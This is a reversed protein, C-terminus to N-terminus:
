EDVMREGGGDRLESPEVEQQFPAAGEPVSGSSAVSKELAIWMAEEEADIQHPMAIPAPNHPPLLTVSKAGGGRSDSANFSQIMSPSLLVKITFCGLLTGWPMQFCNIASMVMVFTRHKRLQLCRGAYLTLGGYVWGGLLLATGLGAFLYGMFQAGIEASSGKLEPTMAMAIGMLIHFLFICSGLLTFGGLVYHFIALLRVHEEEIARRVLANTPVDPAPIFDVRDDPSPM